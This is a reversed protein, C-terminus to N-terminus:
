RASGVTVPSTAHALYLRPKGNGVTRISWLDDIDVTRRRVAYAVRRTDLWVPQGEVRRTEALARERLTGLDLVSLRGGPAVFAARTGAPSIAFQAGGRRLVTLTRRTYDGLVLYSGGVGTMTAYFRNLHAPDFSVDAFSPASRGHWIGNPILRFQQLGGLPQGTQLDVLYVRTLVPAAKPADDRDVYAGVTFAGVLGDGRVAVSEPAGPLVFRHELHMAATLVAGVYPASKSARQWVCVARGGGSGVRQCPVTPVLTAHPTGRGLPSVALRGGPSDQTTVLLHPGALLAGVSPAASAASGAAAAAAAAVALCAAARRGTHQFPRV